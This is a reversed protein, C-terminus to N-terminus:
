SASSESNGTIGFREKLRETTYTWKLDRPRPVTNQNGLLRKQKIAKNTKVYFGGGGASSAMCSLM